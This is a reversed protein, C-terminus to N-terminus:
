KRNSRKAATDLHHRIWASMSLGERDAAAQYSTWQDDTARFIRQPTIGTPPRGIRAPTKTKRKAM